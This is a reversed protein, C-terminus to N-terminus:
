ISWVSYAYAGREDCYPRICVEFPGDAWPGLVGSTRADLIVDRVLARIWAKIDGRGHFRPYEHYAEGYHPIVHIGWRGSTVSGTTLLKDSM